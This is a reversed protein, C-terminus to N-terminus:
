YPASFARIGAIGQGGAHFVRDLDSSALGGLAFVPLNTQKVLDRFVTWGLPCADPHTTTPMVPALVAFDAGIKEAHQLEALNHCSAAVWPYASPRDQLSMLVRSSLHIGDATPKSLPLDANLLLRIGYQECERRVHRYVTDLENPPLSKARLQLLSIGQEIMGALQSFIQGSNNGELIAYRDPLQTANVIPRNAAPLPYDALAHEAVWRMAQGELPVASGAFDTVKWVDLFVHLDPYRHNIQILPRATLVEIGIEERLERGLAEQVTEGAELKGGPFEWLGGQHAHKARQTLLIHGRGDSIVGVAVHLASDTPM